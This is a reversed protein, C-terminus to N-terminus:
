HSPTFFPIGGGTRTFVRAIMSHQDCQSISSDAFVRISRQMATHESGTVQTRFGATVSDM